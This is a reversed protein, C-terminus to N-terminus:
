EVCSTREFPAGILPNPPNADPGSSKHSPISWIWPTNFPLDLLFSLGISQKSTIFIM